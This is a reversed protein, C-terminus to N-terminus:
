LHLGHLLMRDLEAYILKEMAPSVPFHRQKIPRAMGVDVLHSIVGTPGLVERAFSPFPNVLTKLQQRQVDTLPRQESSESVSWTHLNSNLESVLGSPLLDFLRWFDIGLYLNLSLNPVIYLSLPRIEGRFTIDTEVFGLVDQSKGDVTRVVSKIKRFERESDM